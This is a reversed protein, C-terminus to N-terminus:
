IKKKALEILQERTKQTANFAVLDRQYARAPADQALRAEEELVRKRVIDAEKEAHLAMKRDLEGRMKREEVVMKKKLEEMLKAEITPRLSDRVQQMEQAFAPSNMHANIAGVGIYKLAEARMEALSDTLIRKFDDPTVKEEERERKKKPENEEVETAKMLQKRMSVVDFDKGKLHAATEALRFVGNANILYHIPKGGKNEKIYEGIASVAQLPAACDPHAKLYEFLHASSAYALADGAALCPLYPQGKYWYRRITKGPAPWSANTVFTDLFAQSSSAMKVLISKFNIRTSGVITNKTAM